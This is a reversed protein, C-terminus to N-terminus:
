TPSCVAGGHWVMSRRLLPARVAYVVSMPNAMRKSADLIEFSVLNGGAIVVQPTRRGFRPITPVHPHAQIDRVRHELSEANGLPLNLLSEPGFEGDCEISLSRKRKAFGGFERLHISHREALHHPLSPNCPVVAVRLQRLVDGISTALLVEGIEFRAIRVRVRNQREDGERRRGPAPWTSSAQCRPAPTGGAM